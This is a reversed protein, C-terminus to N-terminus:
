YNVAIGLTIGQAWFDTGHFNFSPRQADLKGNPILVPSNNPNIGEDIVGGPRVVSTISFIDYGLSVNVHDGFQYGLKLILEPVFAFRTRSYTGINSPQTLVHGPFTKTVVGNVTETTVGNIDIQQQVGGIAMKGTVGFTFGCGLVGESNFGVQAGYFQNTAYFRDEGFISLGSGDHFTTGDSIFIGDRLDIYRFGVLYDCRESFVAYGPTKVNAEAGWLRLPSSANIFGSTRTSQPNNPDVPEAFILYTNPNSKNTLDKYYRGISPDGDSAIEFRKNKTEFQFFSVEGAWTDNVWYGAEIRFGDFAHHRIGDGYMTIAANQPLPNLFVQNNPVHQILAPAPGDRFDFLLYELSGYFGRSGGSCGDSCMSTTPASTVDPPPTQGIALAATALWAVALYANRRHM